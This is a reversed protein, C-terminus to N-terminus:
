RIGGQLTARPASKRASTFVYTSFLISLAGAAAALLGAGRLLPGSVDILAWTARLIPLVLAASRSAAEALVRGFVALVHWGSQGLEIVQAVGEDGGRVLLLLTTGIFVLAACALLASSTWVLRSVRPATEATRLGRAEFAIRAM